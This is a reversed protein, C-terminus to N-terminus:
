AFLHAALLLADHAGQDFTTEFRRLKVLSERSPGTLHTDVVAQPIPDLAGYCSRMDAETVRLTDRVSKPPMTGDRKNLDCTRRATAYRDIAAITAAVARLDLPALEIPM